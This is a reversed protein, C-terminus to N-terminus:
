FKQQFSYRLLCGPTVQEEPCQQEVPSLHGHVEPLHHTSDQDRIRSAGVNRNKIEVSSWHKLLLIGQGLIDSTGWGVGNKIYSGSHQKKRGVGVGCIMCKKYSAKEM